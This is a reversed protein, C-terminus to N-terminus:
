LLGGHRNGGAVRLSSFSTTKPRSDHGAGGRGGLGQGRGQSPLPGYRSYERADIELGHRHTRLLLDLKEFYRRVTLRLGSQTSPPIQHFVAALFCRLWWLLGRANDPGMRDVPRQSPYNAQPLTNGMTGSGDADRAYTKPNATAMAMPVARREKGDALTDPLSQDRNFDKNM